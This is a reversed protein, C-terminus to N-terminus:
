KMKDCYVCRVSLQISLISVAIDHTANCATSHYFSTCITVEKSISEAELKDREEKGLDFFISLIADVASTISEAQGEIQIKRSKTDIDIKM